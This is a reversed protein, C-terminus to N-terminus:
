MRTTSPTGMMSLDLSSFSRAFIEFSNVRFPAAILGSSMETGQFSFVPLLLPYLGECDCINQKITRQAGRMSVSEDFKSISIRGCIREVLQISMWEVCFVGEEDISEGIDFVKGIYILSIDIWRAFLVTGLHTQQSGRSFANKQHMAVPANALKAPQDEPGRDTRSMDHLHLKLVSARDDKM